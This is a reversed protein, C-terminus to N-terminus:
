RGSMGTSSRGPRRVDGHLACPGGRLGGSSRRGHVRACRPHGQPRVANEAAAPSLGLSAVNLFPRDDMRAIDLERTEEGQVALRVADDLDLPIELARAFDNATGTPVVALPLGARAAPSAVGGLSGDGGAVVVRAPQAAIAADIEGLGFTEVEAGLARLAEAVDDAEGQGSDPNALLAILDAPEVVGPSPEM